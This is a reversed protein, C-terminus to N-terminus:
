TNKEDDITKIFVHLVKKMSREADEFSPVQKGIYLFLFAFNGEINNFVVHKNLRYAERMLRKIQNRKVASGFKKKPAVFGAKIPVDAPGGIKHYLLKIPYERISKGETFLREFLKKSKLNENKAVSFDSQGPGSLPSMTLTKLNILYFFPLFRGKEITKIAPSLIARIYTTKLM